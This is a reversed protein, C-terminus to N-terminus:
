FSPFFGSIKLESLGIICNGQYGTFPNNAFVSPIGFNIPMDQLLFDIGNPDTNINFTFSTTARNNENVKTINVLVISYAFWMIKKNPNIRMVRLM